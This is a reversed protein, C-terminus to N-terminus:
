VSVGYAKLLQGIKANNSRKQKIKAVIVRSIDDVTISPVEKKAPNEVPAEEWPPTDADDVPHEESPEIPTKEPISVAAEQKVPDEQQTQVPEKAIQQEAQAAATLQVNLTEMQKLQEAMGDFMISFGEFITTMGLIIKQPNIVAPLIQTNAVKAM